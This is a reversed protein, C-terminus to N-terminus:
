LKGSAAFLLLHMMLCDTIIYGNGQSSDQVHSRTIVPSEVNNYSNSRLVAKAAATMRIKRGSQSTTFVENETKSDEVLPQFNHGDFARCVFHSRAKKHDSGCCGVAHESVQCCFVCRVVETLVADQNLGYMKFCIGFYM